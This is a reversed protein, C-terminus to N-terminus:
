WNRCKGSKKNKGTWNKTQAHCNPCLINLNEIRNDRKDGNIHHLQLPIEGGQWERKGCEECTKDKLGERFLRNKLSYTNIYTSDKVLIDTMPMKISPSNGKNWGQGSFHSTDLGCEEIARKLAEHASGCGNLGLTLLTERYSRSEKVAIALQKKSYRKERGKWFHSTDLAIIECEKQLRKYNASSAALGLRESLSKWSSSNPVEKELLDRSWRKKM